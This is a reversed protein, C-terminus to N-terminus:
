NSVHGIHASFPGSVSRHYNHSVSTRQSPPKEERSKRGFMRKLVARFSNTKRRKAPPDEIRGNPLSNHPMGNHFPVAPAQLSQYGDAESVARMDMSPGRHRIRLYEASPVVRSIDGQVAQGDADSATSIRLRECEEEVRESTPFADPFRHVLTTAESGTLPKPTSIKIDGRRIAQAKLSSRHLQSSDATSGSGSKERVM